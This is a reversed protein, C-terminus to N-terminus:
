RRRVAGGLRKLAADAAREGSEWAGGVTGWLTEHAAEGAFFIRDRFPEAFARRLAQGGPPAASSGGLVWPEKAWQTAHTRKVAKRVDNGFLGALWDTAFAVMAAEGQAALNRGFRGGVEVTCLSTGAVNALLGATRGGAAKEFVLDDKDLGLPNGDLELAVRDTSGLSLKAAAEIQRKPLAPEFKIKEAALVNTSATVIVARGRLWGRSTEVEVAARGWSGIRTAATSLRVPLGESLKALLAGFGQRCLADADREVARALDQASIEDLDKGCNFPGLVFDVSPRWEGLNKHLAQAGSVDRDEDGKDRIAATARVLAALFNEVEGERANRQGIRLKQGVPAPYVDLGAARALKAVPNVEPQRIWHAGRDYPVGFTRTDTICRGGIRDAAEVLAVRRGAAVLRRAAAIGAAGAGVIVADIDGSAPVQALAPGAVATATAALFTRRSLRTMTLASQIPGEVM